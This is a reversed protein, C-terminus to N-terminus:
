LNRVKYVLSEYSSALKEKDKLNLRRYEQSILHMRSKVLKPNNRLDHLAHEIMKHVRSYDSFVGVSNNTKIRPLEGKGSFELNIKSSGVREKIRRLYELADQKVKSDNSYSSALTNYNQIALAYDNKNLAKKGSSILRENYPSLTNGFLVFCIVMVLLIIWLIWPISNSQGVIEEARQLSMGTIYSVDDSGYLLRQILERIRDELGNYDPSNLFNFTLHGNLSYVVAAVYNRFNESNPSQFYISIISNPTVNGHGHPGLISINPEELIFPRIYLDSKDIYCIEGTLPNVGSGGFDVLDLNLAAVMSPYFCSGSLIINECVRNGRCQSLGGAQTQQSPIQPASIIGINSGGSSGQANSGQQTGSEPSLCSAIYQVCSVLHSFPNVGPENYFGYACHRIYNPCASPNRSCVEVDERCQYSMYYYPSVYYNYFSSFSQSLIYNSMLCENEFSECNQNAACLYTPSHQGCTNPNYSMCDSIIEQCDFTLETIPYNQLLWAMQTLTLQGTSGNQTQGDGPIIRIGLTFGDSDENCNVVLDITEVQGVFAEGGPFLNVIYNGSAGPALSNFGVSSSFGVWNHIWFAYQGSSEIICNNLQARGQNTVTLDFSRRQGLPIEILGPLTIRLDYQESITDSGVVILPSGTGFDELIALSGKVEEDHNLTWVAQNIQKELREEVTTTLLSDIERLQKEITALSISIKEQYENLVYSSYKSSADYSYKYSTRIAKRAEELKAKFRILDSESAPKTSIIERVSQAYQASGGATRAIESVVEVVQSPPSDSDAVIPTKSGPDSDEDDTGLGTIKAVYWDAYAISFATLFVAVTLFSVAHMNFFGDNEKGFM